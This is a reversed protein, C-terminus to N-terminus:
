YPKEVDVAPLPQFHKLNITYLPVALRAVVSAIMVDQLHINHSLHFVALQRMAWRDDDETPHEIRFQRLFRIAQGRKVKNTAGQVTEMWGVPTIALRQQGLSEFWDKAPQFGRLLDVLVSTDVIADIM